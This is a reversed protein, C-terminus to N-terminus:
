VTFTRGGSGGVSRKWKKSKWLGM